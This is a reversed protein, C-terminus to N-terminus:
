KRGLFHIFPKLYAPDYKKGKQGENCMTELTQRPSHALRFPRDATMAEYTDLIRLIRAWPHISTLPLGQPYGSGDGNEHHQLVMMLSDPWIMFSNKLLKFGQSPHREIREREHRTLPDKKKLVESPVGTLGIDHLLAGLGFGKAKEPSWHLFSVFAMGLTCVNLCHTYIDTDHRRIDFIFKLNSEERRVLDLLSDICKMSRKLQETMKAPASTFFNRTWVQLADHTVIAKELNSRHPSELTEEMRRDLYRMVKDIDAAAFYISSIRLQRLKRRWEAPFVEGRSSCPIIRPKLSDKLRVKLYIDFPIASDAPLRELSLPMYGQDQDEGPATFIESPKLDLELIESSKSFVVAGTKKINEPGQSM